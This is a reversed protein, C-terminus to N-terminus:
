ELRYYRSRVRKIINEGVIKWGWALRIEPRKHPTLILLSEGVAALQQALAPLRSPECLHMAFSCVILSYRRGSLAGAAIEAFTFREADDGTRAAYADATYPDIAEVRKAGLQRLALTVEGSGAALDLVSSLDLPWRGAADILSEVVIAEHPNRYDAGFKQYYAKSGHRVYEGRISDGGEPPSRFARPSATKVYAITIGNPALVLEKM